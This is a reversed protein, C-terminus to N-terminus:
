FGFFIKRMKKPGILYTLERSTVFIFFLLLYFTQITAFFHWNTGQMFQHYDASLTQSGGVYSSFRICLRVVLTIGWYIITKWVTNYILPKKPFLNVWPLHDVVLLVKAIVAAALTVDLFSFPTIGVGLLLYSEALNLVNFSVFFFLFAPFIRLAERKSWEYFRRMDWGM